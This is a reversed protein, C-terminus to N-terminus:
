FEERLLIAHLMKSKLVEGDKRRAHMLGAWMDWNDLLILRIKKM